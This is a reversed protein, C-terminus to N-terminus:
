AGRERMDCVPIGLSRAKDVLNDTIGSGDVAVLGIPLAELMRDNRKFPAASNFRKWDPRFKVQAVGRHEAWKEAILDAGQRDGGHMLVM